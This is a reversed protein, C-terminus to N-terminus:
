KLHQGDKLSIRRITFENPNSANYHRSWIFWGHNYMNSVTKGTYSDARMKLREKILYETMLHGGSLIDERTKSSESYAHRLLMIIVDAGYKFAQRIYNDAISYPPNTLVIFPEKPVYEEAHFFDVGGIGVGRDILDTELIKNSLNDKLVKSIAGKGCSPEWITYAYHISLNALLARTAEPPTEFFDEKPREYGETTITYLGKFGNNAM